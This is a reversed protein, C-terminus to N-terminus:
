ESAFTAPQPMGPLTIGIALAVSPASKAHPVTGYRSLLELIDAARAKKVFTKALRFQNGKLYEGAIPGSDSLTSLWVSVTKQCCGLVEAIETQTKGLARLKVLAALQDKTLSVGRKSTVKEPGVVSSAALPTQAASPLQAPLRRSQGRAVALKQTADSATEPHGSHASPLTPL